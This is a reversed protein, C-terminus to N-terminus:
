FAKIAQKIEQDPIEDNMPLLLYNILQKELEVINDNNDLPLYALYLDSSWYKFMRTIKPRENNRFYKQFYEKVRKRLNQGDTHQARGIYFPFETIGTLISCKIYFLYLGGSDNPIKNIDSNFDDGTTNLYKISQWRSFSIDIQNFNFRDWLPKHLYYSVSQNNLREGLDFASNIM